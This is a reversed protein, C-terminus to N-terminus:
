YIRRGARKWRVWAQARLSLLGGAQWRAMVAGSVAIALVGGYILNADNDASGILGVALSVWVLLFATMLGVGAALQYALDRTRGTLFDFGLCAAALMAGFVAFDALDWNVEETVQMAALPVLLLGLAASWRVTRWPRSSRHRANEVETSM